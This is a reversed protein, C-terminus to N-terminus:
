GGILLLAHFTPTQCFFFHVNKAMLLSMATGVVVLKKVREFQVWFSANARSAAKPLLRLMFLRVAKAVYFLSVELTSFFFCM